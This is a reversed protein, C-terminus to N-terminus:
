RAIQLDPRARVIREFGDNTVRHCAHLWLKELRPLHEVWRYLADDKLDCSWLSLMRLRSLRAIGLIAAVENGRAKPSDLSLVRLCPGAPSAALRRLLPAAPHALDLEEVFGRRVKARCTLPLRDDEQWQFIHRASVAPDDLAIALGRPDGHEQLWDGYVRRADEDEPNAFIADRLADEIETRARPAPLLIEESVGDFRTVRVAHFDETFVVREVNTQPDELPDGAWWAMEAGSRVDRLRFEVATSNGYDIWRGTGRYHLEFRGDPTKTTSSTASV